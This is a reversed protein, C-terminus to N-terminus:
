HIPVIADYHGSRGSNSPYYAVDVVTKGNENIVIVRQQDSQYINIRLNMRLALAAILPHDAYEGNRAYKITQDVYNEGINESYKPHEWM